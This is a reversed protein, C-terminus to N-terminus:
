NERKCYNGEHYFIRGRIYKAKPHLKDFCNKCEQNASTHSIVMECIMKEM